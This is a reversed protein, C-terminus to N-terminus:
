QKYEPPARNFGKGSFERNEIVNERLKKLRQLCIGSYYQM